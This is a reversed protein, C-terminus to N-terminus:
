DNNLDDTADLEADKLYQLMAPTAEWRVRAKSDLRRRAHGAREFEHLIARMLKKENANPDHILQVEHIKADLWLALTADIRLTM